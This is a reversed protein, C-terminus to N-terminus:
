RFKEFFYDMSSMTVIDSNQSLTNLFHTIQTYRSIESSLM